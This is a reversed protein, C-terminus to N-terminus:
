KGLEKRERGIDDFYGQEILIFIDECDAKKWEEIAKLDVYKM